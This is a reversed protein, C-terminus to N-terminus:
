ACFSTYTHKSRRTALPHADTSEGSVALLEIMARELKNIWMQGDDCRLSTTRGLKTPDEGVCSMLVM